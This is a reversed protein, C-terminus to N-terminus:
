RTPGRPANQTEADSYANFESEEDVFSRSDSGVVLFNMGTSAPSVPTTTLAVRPIEDVKNDIYRNVAVVGAVVVAACLVLALGVRGFLARQSAGFSSVTSGHYRRTRAFDARAFDETM